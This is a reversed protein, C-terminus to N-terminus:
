CIRFRRFWLFIHLFVTGRKSVVKFIRLDDDSVSPSPPVDLRPSQSSTMLDSGDASADGCSGLVDDFPHPELASSEFLVTDM